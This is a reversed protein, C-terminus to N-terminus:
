GEGVASPHGDRENALAVTRTSSAGDRDSACTSWGGTLDGEGERRVKRKRGRTLTVRGGGGRVM